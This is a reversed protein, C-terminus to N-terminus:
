LNLITDRLSTPGARVIRTATHCVTRTTYIAVTPSTESDFQVGVDGAIGALGPETKSTLAGNAAAVFDFEHLVLEDTAPVRHKEIAQYESSAAM